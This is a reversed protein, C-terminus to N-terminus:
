LIQIDIVPPLSDTDKVVAIEEETLGYLKFALRDIREDTRKIERELEERDQWTERIEILKKNLELLMEVLTVLDDHLKKETPNDFDICRIPLKRIKNLKVQAQARGREPSMQQYFHTMLKSNLLGLIYKLSLQCSPKPITCHLSRGTYWQETDLTGIISDGTQRTIIKVPAQFFSKNFAVTENEKIFDEYNHRLWRKYLHDGRIQYRDIDRGKLYAIDLEHQRSGDYLIDQRLRSEARSMRGVETRQYNIGADKSNCFEALSGYDSSSMVRALLQSTLIWDSNILKSQKTIQKQFSSIDHNEHIGPRLLTVENNNRTREDITKRLILISNFVGQEFVKIVGFDILAVIAASQLVYNRFGEYKIGTLYTNPLIMGLLGDEKLLQLGREVFFRFVDNTKGGSTFGTELLFNKEQESLIDGYPPNGIVVDFGGSAMIDKFEIGWNFPKKDQWNDAFYSCLEEEDGSILSNGQRINDSLSPLIEQSSLSRLLLNLRAIEVAQRDLDVGFINSTLIPLRELQDLEAPSKGKKYAHYNLLEDFARILFSGSGCAPDLIKVDYVKDYNDRHEEIFRGVTEKVIYDTVWKPTYYIGAAKRKEKKEEVEFIEDVPLGMDLRLQQQKAKQKAVHAVYGLYQEYVQGLVDADIIAFDYKAFDGRVEYLGKIIESLLDGDVWIQQWLDMMPNFLDSDYDEAFDNFISRLSEILDGSHNEWQHLAALLPHDRALGRDEATRIFLLRNFFVQILRDTLVLLEKESTTISKHKCYGYIKSFLRERWVRLLEYLHREVPIRLPLRGFKEAEKDLSGTAIAERSLLRLADFDSLYRRWDLNLCLAANPDAAKREANFVQLRDFNTLIAWTVGKNYAYSIAQKRHDNVLEDRIPKVELCFKSVRNIKFLYDVRGTVITKEAEIENLNSFDWGLAKFLPQIFVNKTNAENYERRETATLGEFKEILRAIKQKPDEEM